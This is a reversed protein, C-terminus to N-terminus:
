AVLFMFSLFSHLYTKGTFKPLTFVPKNDNVDQINIQYSKVSRLSPTGKDKVKIGIQYSSVTERDLKKVASLVGSDKNISFQGGINGSVIEFEVIANSGADADTASFTTIVTNVAIDEKVEPIRQPSSIVPANDNEDMVTVQLSIEKSKRDALAASDTARIRLSYTETRERDLDVKTKLVGDTDGIEFSTAAGGNESVLAFTVKGNTGSDPDTARVVAVTAAIGCNESIQKNSVKFM